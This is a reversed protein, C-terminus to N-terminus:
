RGNYLCYKSFSTQFVQVRERGEERRERKKIGDESSHGGFRSPLRDKWSETMAPRPTSPLLLFFDGWSNLLVFVPNFNEQILFKFPFAPISLPGFKQIPSKVLM